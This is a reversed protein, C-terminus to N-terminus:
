EMEGGSDGLEPTESQTISAVDDGASSKPKRPGKKIGADRRKHLNKSGPPRGKRSSAGPSQDRQPQPQLSPSQQKNGGPGTSPGESERRLEQIRKPIHGAWRGTTRPVFDLSSIRGVPTPARADPTASAARSNVVTGAATNTHRGRRRPPDGVGDFRNIPKVARKVGVTDDGFDWGPLTTSNNTHVASARNRRGRLERGDADRQIRQLDPDQHGLRRMDFHYDYLDAEKRDEFIQPDVPLRGGRAPRRPIRAHQATIKDSELYERQMRDLVDQGYAALRLLNETPRTRPDYKTLPALLEEPRRLGQFNVRLLRGAEDDAESDSPSWSEKYLDPLDEDDLEDESLTMVRPRPTPAESVTPKSQTRKGLATLSPRTAPQRKPANIPAVDDYANLGVEDDEDDPSFRRRRKRPPDALEARATMINQNGSAAGQRTRVGQTGPQARSHTNEQLAMWEQKTIRAWKGGGRYHWPIQPFKDPGESKLLLASLSPLNPGEDREKEAPQSGEIRDKAGPGRIAVKNSSGASPMGRAWRGQGRHHFTEEPHSEVYDTDVLTEQVESEISDDILKPRPGRAYRGQGRHHFSDQPHAKVYAKSYLTTDDTPMSMRRRSRAGLDNSQDAAFENNDDDDDNDDNDENDEDVYTRGVSTRGYRGHHQPIVVDDFNDSDGGYGEADDYDDGVPKESPVRSSRAASPPVTSKARYRGNGRHVWEIEPYKLTYAKDVTLDYEQVIEVDGASKKEIKTSQRHGTYDPGPKYWGNGCHHFEVGDYHSLQSVHITQDPDFRFQGDATRGVAHGAFDRHKPRKLTRPRRGKKYWGNGTHYFQENPHADVHEKDYTLEKDSAMDDGESDGSDTGSASDRDSSRDSNDNDNENTNHDNEDDKIYYSLNQAATARSPRRDIEPTQPATRARSLRPRSKRRGHDDASHSGVPDASSGRVVSNRGFHADSLSQHKSALADGIGTSPTNKNSILSPHIDTTAFKTPRVCCDASTFILLPRAEPISLSPILFILSFSRM